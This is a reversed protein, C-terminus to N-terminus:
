AGIDMSTRGVRERCERVQEVAKRRSQFSSKVVLIKEKRRHAEVSGYDPAANSRFCTPFISGDVM